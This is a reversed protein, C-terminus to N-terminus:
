FRRGTVIIAQASNARGVACVLNGKISVSFYDGVTGFVSSFSKWSAGNYHAMKMWNGVVFIDNNEQGRIRNPYVWDGCIDLWSKMKGEGTKLSEKWVGSSCGAYLTDGYAWITQVRGALVKSEYDVSDFYYKSTLNQGDYYLVSSLRSSIDYQCFYVDNESNGWVDYFRLDSHTEIKTFKQGDYHVINGNIGVFYMNSSSMGWIGYGVSANIGMDHLQYITWKNGNWHFPYGFDTIWIDNESFYFIRYLNPNTMSGMYQAEIDFVTWKNGDWKAANFRGSDTNIDGVALINNEDVITVDMLKSGYEGLTDIEWVFNHSTTDPISHNEPETLCEKCSIALLLITLLIATTLTIKAYTKNNFPM